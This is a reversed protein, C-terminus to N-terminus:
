GCYCCGKSGPDKPDRGCEPCYDYRVGVREENQLDIPPPLLAEIEEPTLGLPNEPEAM